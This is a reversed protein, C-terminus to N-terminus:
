NGNKAYSNWRRIEKDDREINSNTSADLFQRALPLCCAGQDSTAGSEVRLM